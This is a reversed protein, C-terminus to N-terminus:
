PELYLRLKLLGLGSFWPIVWIFIFSLSVTYIGSALVQKNCQVM